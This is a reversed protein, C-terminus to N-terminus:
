APVATYICTTRWSYMAHSVNWICPSFKSLPFYFRNRWDRTSCSWMLFKVAREDVDKFRLHTMSCTVNRSLEYNRAIWSVSQLKNRSTQFVEGLCPSRMRCWWSMPVQCGASLLLHATPIGKDVDVNIGSGSYSFSSFSVSHHRPIYGVHLSLRLSAKVNSSTARPPVYVRIIYAPFFSFLCFSTVLPTTTRIDSAASVMRRYSLVPQPVRLYDPNRILRLGSSVGPPRGDTWGNTRLRVEAKWGNMRTWELSSPFLRSAVLMVRVTVRTVDRRCNRRSSLTWSRRWEIDGNHGATVSMTRIRSSYWFFFSGQPSSSIKEGQSILLKIRPVFLVM